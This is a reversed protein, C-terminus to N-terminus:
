DLERYVKYLLYIEILEAPILVFLGVISLIVTFFTFAALMECIGAIKASQGLLHESRVLAFGFLGNACGYAIARIVQIGELDSDMDMLLLGISTGYDAVLIVLYLISGLTLYNSNMRRGMHIFGQIFFVFAVMVFAKIIIFGTTGIDFLGTTFFKFEFFSEPFGLVFYVLGGIWAFLLTNRNLAPGGNSPHSQTFFNWDEGLAEIILRLTAPRPDVEGSEIRQITRVTVNCREVLEEQTLGKQKRLETLRKGLEPQIM